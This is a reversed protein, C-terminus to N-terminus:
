HHLMQAFMQFIKPGNDYWFEMHHEVSKSM